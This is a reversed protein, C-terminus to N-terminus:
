QISLIDFDEIAHLINLYKQLTKWVFKWFALLHKFDNSFDKAIAIM